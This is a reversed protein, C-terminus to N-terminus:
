LSEELNFIGSKVPPLPASSSFSRREHLPTNILTPQPLVTFGLMRFSDARETLVSVIEIRFTGQLSHVVPMDAPTINHENLTASLELICFDGDSERFTPQMIFRFFEEPLFLSFLIM